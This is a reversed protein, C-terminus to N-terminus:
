TQDNFRLVVPRNNADSFTVSTADKFTIEFLGDTSTITRDVETRSQETLPSAITSSQSQGDAGDAGDAGDVGSVSGPAAQPELVGEANSVSETIAPPNPASPLRPQPNQGIINKLDDVFGRGLPKRNM